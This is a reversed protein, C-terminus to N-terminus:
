LCITIGIELKPFGPRTSVLKLPDIVRVKPSIIKDISTSSIAKFTKKKTTKPWEGYLEM